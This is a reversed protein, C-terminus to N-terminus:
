NPRQWVSFARCGGAAVYGYRRLYQAVAGGGDYVDPRSVIVVQPPPLIALVDPGPNILLVALDRPDLMAPIPVHYYLAGERGANWWVVHGRNYAANAIAAATRYDDKKHRAAFRLSCCSVIALAVFGCAAIRFPWSPKSRAIEFGHALVFLVVPLAPTFHRALVRFHLLWGAGLLIVAPLGIAVAFAIKTQRSSERWLAHCGVGLLTGVAIAYFVLPLIFPLFVGLQGSRMELRGPGLGAFGLLEYAIQPINRLDTTGVDSARAGLKITWLYYGALMSLLCLTAFCFWAHARVLHELRVRSFLFPLALVLAGAWIMGLLSSGSLAILGLLFAIMWGRESSPSVQRLAFLSAFLALSAGIQMGYPRTENLYYWIFPSTIIVLGAVRRSSRPFALLFAILGAAFWPISGARLAWESTGCLKAFGWEYLMYFPMQLDSSRDAAMSQWWAAFTPQGAKLATLSEDIWLSQNSVAAFTVALALLAATWITKRTSSSGPGAQTVAANM